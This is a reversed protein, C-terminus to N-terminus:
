RGQKKEMGTYIYINNTNVGNIKGATSITSIMM